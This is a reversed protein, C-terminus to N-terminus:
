ARSYKTGRGRGSARLYGGETLKHIERIAKDKSWGLAMAIETSSLLIGPGLLNIMKQGDSTVNYTESVVPLVVTIANDSIIFRPKLAYGRYSERIRRIGTGFMEIYHMRFFMNGIVPNRLNSISGSLYEEETLNGPLGGPSSIEIRDPFMCIRIHANIDWTRHVLANAIAERYAEEPINDVPIREFGDIKEYQYYRKFMAAAEDYQRLISIGSFTQREMIESITKGFRAIDIGYLTNQDAFLAGAVNIKGDKTYFGFTRLMDDSLGSIGLKEILKKELYDYRPNELGSPLQEFYMNSGELTLRKLTTQDVEITSTDNRKYAKGMYLYPKYQGEHVTLDITNQRRNVKLTYDPKPAVSDNIKNDIDLRATDPDSIGCVTGDDNIGFRITGTGYNAFASVTKLFTNTIDSKFELHKNEKM